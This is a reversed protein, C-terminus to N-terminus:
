SAGTAPTLVVDGVDVGNVLLEGSPTIVVTVSTTSSDTTGLELVVTTTIAQGDAPEGGTDVTFSCPDVTITNGEALAHGGPFDSNTITFICSGFTQM